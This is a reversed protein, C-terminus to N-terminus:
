QIKFTMPLVYFVRVPRGNLQAPTTAPRLSRVAQRVEADLAGGASALIQPNEVAGNEAVEFYVLM